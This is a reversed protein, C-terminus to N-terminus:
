FWFKFEDHIDYTCCIQFTVFIVALINKGFSYCWTSIRNAQLIYSMM